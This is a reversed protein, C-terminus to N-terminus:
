QNNSKNNHFWQHFAKQTEVSQWKRPNERRLKNWTEMTIEQQTNPVSSTSQSGSTPAPTGSQQSGKFPNIFLNNFLTPNTRALDTASEYSLGNKGAVNRVHEDSKDKFIRNLETQATLFNKDQEQKSMFEQMRNAILSDIAAQDFTQTPTNMNNTTGQDPQQNNSTPMGALLEEVRKQASLRAELESYKSQLADFNERMQKNEGELSTIHRQAHEDRKLIEQLKDLTIGNDASQASQDPTVPQQDPQGQGDVSTDPTDINFTM